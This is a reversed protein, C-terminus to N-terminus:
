RINGSTPMWGNPAQLAVGEPTIVPDPLRSSRIDAKAIQFEVSAARALAESRRKPPSAVVIRKQKFRQRVSEVVPVLDSDGSILMAMDFRDDYADNLLRVAIKVDTQKEENKNWQAGCERCIASKSLFVGFDIEVCGQARLADIFVAQRKAKNPNNRVWTTFYRVLELHQRPKLLTKCLSHLDLWRSTRLRAELLGFYLNYGDIYAIVREQTVGLFMLQTQTVLPSLM